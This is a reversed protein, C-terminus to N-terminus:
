TGWIVVAWGGLLLVPFIVRAAQDMRLALKERGGLTLLGTALAEVISLFVLIISWILIRDLTTLYGLPPLSGGIALNFAIVTLMSTAGLGIQFEFRSPPVWFIAWSMGVVFVLLFMIRFVYFSPDREATLTLTAVSYIGGFAPLEEPAAVLSVGEVRWGEINLRKSIFTDETDAVLVLQSSDEVLSGFNIHFDHRDFPFNRLNHYSSVLGTFRQVYRVEGNEGIQVQDRRNTRQARLNSSNFLELRPVWVETVGFRCGEFGVLRPDRWALAARLDLDLQQNVDDVGMLDVVAFAVSVEVPPGGLDPREGTRMEPRVCQAAAASALLLGLLAAVIGPLVRGM